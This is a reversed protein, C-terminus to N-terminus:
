DLKLRLGKKWLPKRYDYIMTLLFILLALVAYTIPPVVFDTNVASFSRTGPKALSNQIFNLLTFILFSTEAFMFLAHYIGLNTWRGVEPMTWNILSLKLQILHFFATVLIGGLFSAALFNFNTPAQQLSSFAFVNVLPVLLGDGAIGSLYNFVHKYKEIIECDKYKYWCFWLVQVGFSFFFTILAVKTYINM